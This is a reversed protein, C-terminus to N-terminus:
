RRRAAAREAEEREVAYFAVWGAFEWVPMRRVEVVLKGLDRALRYDAHESPLPGDPHGALRRGRYLLAYLWLM